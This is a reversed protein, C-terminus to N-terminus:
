QDEGKPFLKKQEDLVLEVTDYLRHFESDNVVEGAFKVLDATKYFSEIREINDESIGKEKLIELVNEKSINTIM